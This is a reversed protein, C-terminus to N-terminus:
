GALLASRYMQLLEHLDADDFLLGAALGLARAAEPKARAAAHLAGPTASLINRFRLPTFISSDAFLPRLQEAIFEDFNPLSLLYDLRPRELIESPPLLSKGSTDFALEQKRIISEIGSNISPSAARVTDM